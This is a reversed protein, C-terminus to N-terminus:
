ASWGQDDPGTTHWHPVLVVSAPDVGSRLAQQTATWERREGRLAGMTTSYTRSKTVFHGRFGLTYAWRRLRLGAFAPQGGLWWCTQVLTRAHGSLHRLSVGPRRGTGGCRSCLMGGAGAPGPRAGSGDCLRCFIPGIDVGTTEAAKTAYKAVYGAVAELPTGAGSIPRVDLQRGWCLRRARVRHCGPTVAQVRAAAIRIAQELLVRTAWSPPNTGAGDPGDLRIIAHVHVVGRTQFEAVKAFVVRVRAGAVRRPLGAAVALARRTETAFRAWLLGAHANFLVQGPYDYGCADLPTGIAPDTPPHWRGCVWRAPRRRTRPHCCRPQGHRDPGLHVPGFSPATLTVFLRPRDAVEAPTDKGGRLGAAILHYADLRYLASCSPCVAARRNRCRLAVVRAPWGGTGPHNVIRGTGREVLVSSGALVIPHTCIGVRGALGAVAAVRLLRGTDAPEPTPSMMVPPEQEATLHPSSGALAAPHEQRFSGGRQEPTQEGAYTM